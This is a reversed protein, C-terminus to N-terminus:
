PYLLQLDLRQLYRGHVGAKWVSSRSELDCACRTVTTHM